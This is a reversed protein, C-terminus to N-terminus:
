VYKDYINKLVEEQRETLKGYNEIANEFIEVWKRDKDSLRTTSLLESIMEENSAGTKEEEYVVNTKYKINDHFFQVWRINYKKIISNAMRAALLAEHDNESSSMDLLKIIKNVDDQKM